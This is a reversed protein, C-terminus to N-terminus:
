YTRLFQVDGHKEAVCREVLGGTRAVTKCPDELMLLEKLLERADAPGDVEPQSDILKVYSRAM